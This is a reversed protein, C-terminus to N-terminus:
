SIFAHVAPLYLKTYAKKLARYQRAMRPDKSLEDDSEITQLMQDVAFIAAELETKTLEIPYTTAKSM